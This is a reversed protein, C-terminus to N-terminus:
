KFINALPNRVVPSAVFQFYWDPSFEDKQVVYKQVELGFKWPTDGIKTTKYIGIGVPVSWRNGSQAEWDYTAIPGSSIQWGDGLSFAYIYNIATTSYDNKNSGYGGIDWQHSILGGM